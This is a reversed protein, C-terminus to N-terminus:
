RSIPLAAHALVLKSLNSSASECHELWGGAAGQFGVVEVM